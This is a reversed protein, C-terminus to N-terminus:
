IRESQFPTLFAIKQQKRHLTNHPVNFSSCIFIGNMKLIFHRLDANIQSSVLAKQHMKKMHDRNRHRFFPNWPFRIACIKDRMYRMLGRTIPSKDLTTGQPALNIRIIRKERNIIQMLATRYHRQYNVSACSRTKILRCGYVTYGKKDCRSICVLICRDYGCITEIKHGIQLNWSFLCETKVNHAFMRIIRM